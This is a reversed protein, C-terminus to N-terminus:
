PIVKTLIDAIAKGHLMAETNPTYHINDQLLPWTDADIWYANQYTNGINVQANRVNTSFPYSDRTRTIIVRMNNVFSDKAQLDKKFNNLLDTLTKQYDNAANNEHADAEGQCWVFAAIYPKFGAKKFASLSQGAWNNILIRYQNFSDSANVQWCGNPSPVGEYCLKSGGYAYKVIGVKHGAQTLYYGIGEEPGFNNAANRWNNNVGYKLTDVYGDNENTNSSKYFIYANPISNKFQDPVQATGLPVGEMNSQGCLFILPLYSSDPHTLDDPIRSLTEKRCRFSIIGLGFMLFIAATIRM